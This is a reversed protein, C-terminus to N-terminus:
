LNKKTEVFQEIKVNCVEYIEFLEGSELFVEVITTYTDLKSFKLTVPTYGM